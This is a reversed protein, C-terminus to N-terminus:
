ADSSRAASGAPLPHLAPPAPRTPAPPVLARNLGLGLRFQVFEACALQFSRRRATASFEGTRGITRRAPAFLNPEVEVTERALQGEFGLRTMLFAALRTSARCVAAFGWITGTVLREPNRGLAALYIARAIVEPAYIPPAPRAPAGMLSPAHAFFPTNAAPPIVSAVRLQARSLRLEVHLAQTFARVAAKAGSYASMLPLAHLAVGSCLNVIAGPRDAAMLGLAVRCGNVTGGYTVETVRDHFDAPTEAFLGYVGNGAANVWVGPRGLAEALRGAAQTLADRDTVDAVAIACMGGAARIEAATAELGELGRAILGVRWGRAAFLAATCRGIGSSAGTIIATVSRSAEDGPRM